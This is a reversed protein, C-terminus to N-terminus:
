YVRPTDGVPLELVALTGGGPAEDLYARGGHETAVARVIALGLGSGAVQEADRGRAFRAFVRVRDALPVGPGHDRVTIRGNSLTVDIPEGPPSWKRANDLLNMVAREILAPRGRVTCPRADLTVPGAARRRTREVAMGVIADLDCDEIPGDEAEGSALLVVEDVLHTLEELEAVANGLLEARTDAPLDPARHLLEISTRLSTIPTRLEHSTDAVLAQQQDRSAALAALLRNYGATLRGVEDGRPAGELPTLDDPADARRTVDDTLGEIPRMARRTIVLGILAALFVGVACILIAQLQLRSVTADIETLDRAFMVAGGRAGVTVIMLRPGSHVTWERTAEGGQAAIARDTATVPLAYGASARVRGQVDLDQISRDQPLPPAPGRGPGDPGRGPGNGLGTAPPTQTETAGVGGYAEILRVRAFPLRVALRDAESTLTNEAQRYLERQTTWTGTAAIAIGSVLVMVVVVLTLRTRLTV